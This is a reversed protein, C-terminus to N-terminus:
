FIYCKGHDFEKNTSIEELTKRITILDPKKSPLLPIKDAFVIVQPMEKKRLHKKLLNLCEEKDIKSCIYAGVLEGYKANSIGVVCADSIEDISMIKQEILTPSLNEGGRIILNKKRGIIHLINNEDYEGLDGTHFYGDNDLRLDFGDKALYGLMLNYGKFCIEGSRNNNIGNDDKLVVDVGDFPKGVGVCREKLPAYVPSNTICTSAETMGYSSCLTINLNDQIYCFQEKSYGGGAIIGNKLSSIDRPNNKQAEILMYYFTPVNAIFSCHYKEIIQLAKEPNRSSTIYACKGTLIHNLYSGIGFVHHPPLCLYSTGDDNYDSMQRIMHNVFSYESLAVVKREGTSGSTFFYFSPKEKSAILSPECNLSQEKLSLVKKSVNNSIIWQNEYKIFVDFTILGNFTTLIDNFPTEDDTLTVIGGLSIVAIIILPFEKKALSSILCTSGDKIYDKMDNILGCLLGYSEKQSLFGDKDILLPKDGILIKKLLSYSSENTLPIM